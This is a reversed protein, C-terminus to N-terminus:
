LITRPLRAPHHWTKWIINFVHCSLEENDLTSDIITLQTTM